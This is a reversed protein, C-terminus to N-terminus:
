FFAWQEVGGQEEKKVTVWGSPIFKKERGLRGSSYFFMDTFNIDKGTAPSFLENKSKNSKRIGTTIRLKELQKGECKSLLQFHRMSTWWSICSKTFHPFLKSPDKVAPSSEWTLESLKQLFMQRYFKSYDRIAKKGLNSPKLPQNFFAFNLFIILPIQYLITNPSTQHNKRTNTQLM